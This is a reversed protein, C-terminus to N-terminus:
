GSVARTAGPAVRVTRGTRAAEYIAMLVGLDKLGETGSIHDPLADKRKFLPGLGEMQMRQHHEHPFKMTGGPTERLEGSLPGYSFAPEIKYSKEAAGVYLQDIYNTYGSYGTMYAGSPFNMQWSIGDEVEAFKQRDSVPRFQATVSVPEEGLAYRAAQVCYIGVDMLSGGGSLERKLRWQKPDGVNISFIASILGIDGFTKQRGWAMIQQHHANFHLRYGVALKVGAKECAEIMRVADQVSTTMPKEVIVHKGARAARLTFEAHLANPLCIYVVDIDDSEAIADFNDYDFINEDKLGWKAKWAPIKSPSGTVIGTVRWHESGELGVGVQDTAYGGLGVMALGLKRNRSFSEESKATASHNLLPVALASAGIAKLLTRRDNNM